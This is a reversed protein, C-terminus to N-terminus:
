KLTSAWSLFSDTYQIKEAPFDQVTAGLRINRLRAIREVPDKIMNFINNLQLYMQLEGINWKGNRTYRSLNSVRFVRKENRFFKWLLCEMAVGREVNSLTFIKLYNKFLQKQLSEAIAVQLNDSNTMATEYRELFELVEKLPGEATTLDFDNHKRKVVEEITIEALSTVPPTIETKTLRGGRRRAQPGGTPQPKEEVKTEAAVAPEEKPTEVVPTEEKAPEPPAEPEVAPPEVTEAEVAPSEAVPTEVPTETVEPAEVEPTETVTTEVEPTEAEPTKVATTGATKNTTTSRSKAM